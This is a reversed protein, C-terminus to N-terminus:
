KRIEWYTALTEKCKKVKNEKALENLMITAYNYDVGVIGAIRSTSVRGFYKLNKLIKEKITM